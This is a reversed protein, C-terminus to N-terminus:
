APAKALADTVAQDLNAHTAWVRGGPFELSVRWYELNLGDFDYGRGEGLSKWAELAAHKHDTAAAIQNRQIHQDALRRAELITSMLDLGYAEACSRAAAVRWRVRFGAKSEFPGRGWGHENLDRREVETRWYIELHDFAEHMEREDHRISYWDCDDGRRLMELAQKGPDPPRRSRKIAPTEPLVATAVPSPDIWWRDSLADVILAATCSVTVGFALGAAAIWNGTVAAFFLVWGLVGSVFACIGFVFIRM